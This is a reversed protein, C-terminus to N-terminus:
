QSRKPFQVMLSISKPKQVWLCSCLGARLQITEVVLFQSMFMFVLNDLPRIGYSLLKYRFGILLLWLM